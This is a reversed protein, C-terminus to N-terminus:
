LVVKSVKNGQRRIYLGNEPNAVRIGQLNFYEVPANEDASIESIASTGVFNYGFFTAKSGNSLLCYKVGADCTVTLINFGESNLGTAGNGKQDVKEPKNGSLNQVDFDVSKEGTVVFTTKNAGLFCYITLTGAVKPEFIYCCGENPIDFNDGKYGQGDSKPNNAGQISYKLDPYAAADAFQNAKSSPWAADPGFQLPCQTDSAVVENATPTFDAPVSWTLAQASASIAMVAVAILTFIKKM